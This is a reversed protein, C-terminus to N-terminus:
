FDNKKAVGLLIVNTTVLYLDTLNYIMLKNEGKM